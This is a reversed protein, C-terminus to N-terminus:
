PEFSPPAPLRLLVRTYPDGYLRMYRHHIAKIFARLGQIRHDLHTLTDILAPTEHPKMTLLLAKRQSQFHEYVHISKVLKERLRLPGSRIRLNVWLLVGGLISLELM